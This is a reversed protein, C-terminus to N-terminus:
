TDIQKTLSITDDRSIVQMESDHSIGKVLFMLRLYMYGGITRVTSM